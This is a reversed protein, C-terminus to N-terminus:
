GTALYTEASWEWPYHIVLRAPHIGLEAAVRDRLEAPDKDYGHIRGGYFAVFRYPHTGDPDIKMGAKRADDYSNWEAICEEFTPEDLPSGSPPPAPAPVDDTLTPNM